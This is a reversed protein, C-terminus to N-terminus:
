YIYFITYNGNIAPCYICRLLFETLGHRHIPTMVEAMAHLGAIRVEDSPDRVLIAMSSLLRLDSGLEGCLAIFLQTSACVVGLCYAAAAQFIVFFIWVSILARSCKVHLSYMNVQSSKDSSNELFASVINAFKDREFWSPMTDNFKQTWFRYFYYCNGIDANMDAQLCAYERSVKRWNYRLRVPWPKWVDLCSQPVCAGTAEGSINIFWRSCVRYM